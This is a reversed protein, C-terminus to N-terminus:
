RFIEKQTVAESFIFSLFIFTRRSKCKLKEGSLMSHQQHDPLDEPKVETELGEWKAQLSITTSTQFQERNSENPLRSPRV